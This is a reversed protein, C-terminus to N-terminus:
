LLVFTTSSVSNTNGSNLNSSNNATINWMSAKNSSSESHAVSSVSVSPAVAGRMPSAMAPAAMATFKAEAVETHPAAAEVAPADKPPPTSSLVPAGHRQVELAVSDTLREWAVADGLVKATFEYYLRSGLRLPAM